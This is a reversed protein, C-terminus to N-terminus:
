EDKGRKIYEYAEKLVEKDQPYTLLEYAKDFTHFELKKVENDHKDVPKTNESCYGIFFVVDKIIGIYPSYTIVKRFSTDLKVHLNTEEEIERLATEEESENNEVHGKVLSIHGLSMYEILFLIKEKELKYIVAGCSKERIM